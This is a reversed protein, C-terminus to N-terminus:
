KKEGLGALDLRPVFIPARIPGRQPSGFLCGLIMLIPIGLTHASITQRGDHEGSQLGRGGLLLIFIYHFLTHGSTHGTYICSLIGAGVLRLGIDVATQRATLGRRVMRWRACTTCSRMDSPPTAGVKGRTRFFGPPCGSLFSDGLLSDHLCSYPQSLCQLPCSCTTWPRRRM